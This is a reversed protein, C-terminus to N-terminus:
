LAYIVPRKLIACRKIKLKRNVIENTLADYVKNTKIERMQKQFKSLEQNLTALEIDLKKYLITQETLEKEFGELAESTEQIERELNSIIDPLYDKSRELEGLEYDIGQLKLIM